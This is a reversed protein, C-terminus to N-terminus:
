PVCWLIQGRVTIGNYCIAFIIPLHWLTNPLIRIGYEVNGCDQIQKILFSEIHATTM